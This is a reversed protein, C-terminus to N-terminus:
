KGTVNLRLDKLQNSPFNMNANWTNSCVGVDISQLQSAQQLINSLEHVSCHTLVLHQLYPLVLSASIRLSNLRLHTLRPLIRNFSSQLFRNFRASEHRYDDNWAPYHQKVLTTDFSLSRLCQLRDLHTFVLPITSYEIHQLKLSRLRTFQEIRFRSFFSQTIPFDDSLILSVIQDPRIHLDIRDLQDNSMRHVTVRYSSYALLVADIYDSVDTFSLLLEHAFFYRFITHVLEVPLRDLSCHSTM